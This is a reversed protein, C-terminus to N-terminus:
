QIFADILKNKIKKSLGRKLYRNPLLQMYVQNNYNAKSKDYHVRFIEKCEQRILTKNTYSEEDEYWLKLTREWDIPLTTKIKGNIIKINVPHKRIDISGMKCPLEIDKSQLLYDVIYNNVSRIISYYEHEKLPRGINLWQQKRLWKYGDYVGLSNTVKYNRKESVKLIKKRFEEMAM